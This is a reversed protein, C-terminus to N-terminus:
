FENKIIAEMIQYREESKDQENSLLIILGESEPILVLLSTFGDIDGGHHYIVQDNIKLTFFGAGPVNIDNQALPAAFVLEKESETFFNSLLAKGWKELDEINSEIEGASYAIQMQYPGVEQGNDYGKAREEGSITDPGKGTHTFNLPVYINQNLYEQYSLNTLEEILLGLILYNSNSYAFFEGPSFDLGDEKISELIIDFIEETDFHYNNEEAYDEIPGVYDPIGSQHNMLHHITIQDGYPFDPAFDSLPQDLSNIYGERKLKVVAAATFSKTISGIRYILGPDNPINNAQDAMGFGKKLLYEDGKSILVSGTFGIEELYAEASDYGTNADTPPNGDEEICSALSILFAMALMVKFKGLLTTM